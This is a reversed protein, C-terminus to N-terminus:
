VFLLIKNVISEGFSWKGDPSLKKVAILQTESPNLTLEGTNQAQYPEVAMSITFKGLYELPLNFKVAFTSPFIGSRVPNSGVIYGTLWEENKDTVNIVEFEAFNLDGQENSSYAYV